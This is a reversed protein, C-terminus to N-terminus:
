ITIIQIECKPKNKDYQNSVHVNTVIQWNDDKIIGSDVLLDLISSLGNDSDRRKLDGHTFSVFLIIESDIPFQEGQGELIRRQGIVSYWANEHWNQYNKNPITKGNKLTIRSNKKSPTEGILIFKLM